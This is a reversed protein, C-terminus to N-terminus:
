HLVLDLSTCAKGPQPPQATRVIKGPYAHLPQSQLSGSAPEIGAAEVKARSCSLPMDPVFGWCILVSVCGAPRAAVCRASLDSCGFSANKCSFHTRHTDSKRSSKRMTTSEQSRKGSTTFAPITAITLAARSIHTASNQIGFERENINKRKEGLIKYWSISSSTSRLPETGVRYRKM